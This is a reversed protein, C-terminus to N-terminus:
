VANRGRGVDENAGGAAPSRARGDAIVRGAGRAARQHRVDTQLAYKVSCRCVARHSDPPFRIGSIYPSLQLVEAIRGGGQGGREQHVEDPVKSDVPRLVSKTPLTAM